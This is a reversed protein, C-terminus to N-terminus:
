PRSSGCASWSEDPSSEVTLSPTLKSCDVHTIFEATSGKFFLNKEWPHRRCRTAALAARGDVRYGDPFSLVSCGTLEVESPSSLSLGYKGVRHSGERSFQKIWITNM